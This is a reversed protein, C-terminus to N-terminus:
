TEGIHAVRGAVLSLPIVACALSFAGGLILGIVQGIIGPLGLAAFIMAPAIFLGADLFLYVFSLLASFCGTLGANM